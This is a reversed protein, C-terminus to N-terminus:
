PRIAILVAERGALLGHARHSFWREPDCKTCEDSVDIHDDALGAAGLLLRNAASVNLHERESPRTLAPEPDIGAEAATARWM